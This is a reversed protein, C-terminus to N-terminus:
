CTCASRSGSCWPPWGCDDQGQRGGALVSGMRVSAGVDGLATGVHGIRALRLEGVRLRPGPREVAATLDARGRRGALSRSGAAPRGRLGVGALVGVLPLAVLPLHRRRRGAVRHRHPHAAAVPLSPVPQGGPVSLSVVRRVAHARRPDSGGGMGGDLPPGVCRQPVLRRRTRAVVRHARLAGRRGGGRDTGVACSRRALSSSRRDLEGSPRCSGAGRRCFVPRSPHSRTISAATRIDPMRGPPYTDSMTGCPSIAWQLRESRSLM